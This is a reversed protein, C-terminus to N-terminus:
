FRQKQASYIRMKTGQSTRSQSESPKFGYLPATENLLQDFDDTIYNHYKIQKTDQSSSKKQQSSSKQSQNNLRPIESEKITLLFADYCLQCVDIFEYEDLKTKIRGFLDIRQNNLHHLGRQMRVKWLKNRLIQFQQQGFKYCCGCKFQKLPEQQPIFLQNYLYQQTLQYQLIQNSKSTRLTTIFQPILKNDYHKFYIDIGLIEKQLVVQLAQEIQQAVKQVRPEFMIKETSIQSDQLTILPQNSLPIHMKISKILKQRSYVILTEHPYVEQIIVDHYLDPYDTADSILKELEEHNLYKFSVIQNNIRQFSCQNFILLNDLTLNQRRKKLIKGPNRQSSFYFFLEKGKLIFTQPISYDGIISTYSQSIWLQEIFNFM